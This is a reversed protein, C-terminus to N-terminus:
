KDAGGASIGIHVTGRDGDVTISSGHTILRTANRVGVVSPIGFERAIIAGHSLMGGREIVLGSILPFIPGWGPDTQRTVLVDGASLKNSETVDLLIAARATASGGCAGVGRLRTGDDGRGATDDRDGAGTPGVKLDPTDGRDAAGTPGVKLDPTDAGHEPLYEGVGLEIADPPTSAALTVHADRRLAILPKLHHPFMAGGSALLEVEEATLFFIDDTAVIRGSAVLRVGMALAVRRLRSYLLAQKLRARERLQISRQTWSLVTGIVLSQRVFPLFVSVPRRRLAKLVDRTERVREQEQRALIDAPSEGDMAVYAKLLDILPAADEQFSPMTLMLEASCRFGWHELFADLAQRFVRFQPNTRVNDLVEATPAHEFLTRLDADARVMRSLDWLRLAPIGSVLNPLAKLLSNHLAQQDRGPCARALLRQLLGYCVMWGADALAADNWRNCRLDMFGRFDALLDALPKDRLRDPHTRAAYGDVAAEFREVRRTLFLYQWTTKAAILLLEMAQKLRYSPGLRVAATDEAGVFQNFSAALVDGFPVSRLVSHISTLNYYMRAGHVGIIQRLAPEMLALRERSVGFARGLNRFYHYYGLRAVSYLLPSIPQPFNENVNANSWQVKPGVSGLATIPRSQVIWLQGDGDITWEIDQPTGFTREIDLALRTLKAIQVDNLLLAEADAAEDPSALLTWECPNLGEPRRISLRGPNVAGSVLAEGMGSCYELLMAGADNPSVTFLVGSVAANVQRQVIIGMGALTIGRAAQYALVRESRQSAWVRAIADRLAGPTSVDSVSDLQGAFSADASDEGVASSRAIVVHSTRRALHKRAVHQRAVHERAVHEPAVHERAVHEREVNKWLIDADIEDDDVAGNLIIWGEPVPAGSRILRALNVAKGGCRALDTADALPVLTATATNTM